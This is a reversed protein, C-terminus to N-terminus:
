FINKNEEIYDYPDNDSLIVTLKNINIKVKNLDIKTNLWPQAVNKVEENELNKLNFWGAVFVSGGIKKNVTQLYRMITQCGISHGIFYIDDDIKKVIQSLHSVWADIKPEATNPMEPVEVKFGKMELEKKLWLYWDSEPNGDWRHIIFIIKKM